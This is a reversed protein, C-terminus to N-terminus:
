SLSPRPIRARWFHWTSVIAIPESLRFKGARSYTAMVLALSIRMELRHSSVWGVVSGFDVAQSSKRHDGDYDIM